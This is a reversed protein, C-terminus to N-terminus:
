FRQKGHHVKPRDSLVDGAAPFEIGLGLTLDDALLCAILCAHM